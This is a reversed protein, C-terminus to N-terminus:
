PVHDGDREGAGPEGPEPREAVSPGGVAALEGPPEGALGTRLWETWFLGKKISQSFSRAWSKDSEDKSGAFVYISM